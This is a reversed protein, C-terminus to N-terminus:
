FISGISFHLRMSPEGPREDLPFGIDFGIPGIPSRYRFGVGASERLDSRSVGLDRLYTTGVDLFLHSSFSEGIPHRLEFNSQVLLDGGIVSGDAGTAGLSNERFGRVTTRGGLYFRQSIPIATTDDFTWGSETRGNLALSFPLHNLQFPLVISAKAGLKAYNVDSGIHDTALTSTLGVRYGLGPNLPNDRRDYNLSATLFSLDVQGTDFPSIIAGASVDDLDERFITHGLSYTLRPTTRQFLLTSLSVRDLDFEYTSLDIRQFRLEETFLFNTGAFSPDIYRLSATGTSIDAEAEDYYTDFRFNLSRGDRFLSKDIADGFIHLGLESNVGGGLQLTSLPKESVEVFLAERTSDLSGDEPGIDVRSFLGLRLLNVKAERIRQLNWPDGISIDLNKLIEETSINANGAIDIGNIVTQQGPIYHVTLQGTQPDLESWYHASFYGHEKLQNRVREIYTNVTPISPPNAPFEATTINEPIGKLAVWPVRVISGETIFYTVVVKNPTSGQVIRYGIETNQFGEENYVESMLQVNRDLEENIVRQPDLLRELATSGFLDSYRNLVTSRALQSNGTIEVNEISVKQEEDISIIYHQRDDTPDIYEQYQITAFLYGAERYL